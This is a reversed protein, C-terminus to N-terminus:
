KSKVDQGKWFGGREARKLMEELSETDLPVANECREIFAYLSAESNIAAYEEAIGPQTSHKIYLLRAFELLSVEETGKLFVRMKELLDVCRKRVPDPRNWREVAWEESATLVGKGKCRVAELRLRDHYEDNSFEAGVKWLERWATSTTNDPRQLTAEELAEDTERRLTVQDGDNSTVFWKDSVKM